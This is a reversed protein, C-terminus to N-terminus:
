TQLHRQARFTVILGLKYGVEYSPAVNKSHISLTQKGCQLRFPKIIKLMHSPLSKSILVELRTGQFLISPFNILLSLKFLGINGDNYSEYILRNTLRYFDVLAFM